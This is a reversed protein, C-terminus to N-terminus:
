DDRDTQWQDDARMQDAAAFLFGSSVVGALFLENCFGFLNLAKESRGRTPVFLRHFFLSSGPKFVGSLV